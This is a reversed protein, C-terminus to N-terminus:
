PLHQRSVPTPPVGGLTSLTERVRALRGTLAAFVRAPILANRVSTSRRTLQRGPKKDDRTSRDCVIHV